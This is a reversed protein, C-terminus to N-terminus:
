DRFRARQEGSPMPCSKYRGFLRYRFRAFLDYAADRVFRPIVALVLALKWPGGFYSVIRLAAASRAFLQEARSTADRDVLILSDMNAFEPHRSLVQRAFDGQLAAFRLTGRRDHALVFRVTGNRFRCLGDYLLM